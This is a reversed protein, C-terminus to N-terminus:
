RCLLGRAVVISAIVGAATALLAGSLTFRTKKINVAMFYVSMTYFVTETCSMLISAIIGIESDTGYQKFIDLVIGTAASSSFLRVFIVPIIPVPIKLIKGAPKLIQCIFEMLGSSRLIGVSVLLAILTPAIEGVTQFGKKVGELFASFIDIRAFFGYVIIYFIFLPVIIDSLFLIIKM